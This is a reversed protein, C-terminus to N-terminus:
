SLVAFEIGFGAVFRRAIDKPVILGVAAFGVRSVGPGDVDGLDGDIGGGVRCVDGVKVSQLFYAFHDMGYEGGALNFAADSLADAVGEILLAEPLITMEGVVLHRVVDNGGAGIYGGDM